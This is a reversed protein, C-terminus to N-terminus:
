SSAELGAWNRTGKRGNCSNNRWITSLILKRILSTTQLSGLRKEKLKKLVEEPDMAATDKNIERTDANKSDPRSSTPSRSDMTLMKGSYRPNLDCDM